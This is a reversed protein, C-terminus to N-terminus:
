SARAVMVGGWARELRLTCLECSWTRDGEVGGTVSWVTRRSCAKGLRRVQCYAPWDRRSRRAWPRLTSV